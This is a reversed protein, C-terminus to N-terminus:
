RDFPNPGDRERSFIVRWSEYTGDQLSDPLGGLDNVVCLSEGDIDLVVIKGAPTIFVDSLCMAGIRCVPEGVWAALRSATQPQNSFQVHTKDADFAIWREGPFAITLGLLSGLVETAIPGVAYGLRELLIRVSEVNITRGESWGGRRMSGRTAPSINLLM